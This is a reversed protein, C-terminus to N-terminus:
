QNFSIFAIIFHQLNNYNTVNKIAPNRGLEFNIKSLIAKTNIGM